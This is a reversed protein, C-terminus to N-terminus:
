CCIPELVKLDHMAVEAKFCAEQMTEAFGTAQIVDGLMVQFYYYEKEILKGELM